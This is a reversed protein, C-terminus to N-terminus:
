PVAADCAQALPPPLAALARRLSVLDALNCEAALGDGDPDGPDLPGVVNCKEPAPVGTVIGALADRLASADGAAVTGGGAVDGCQCADGIGDGSTDTQAPDPWAACVDCADGDGDGDADAQAPNILAPCNDDCGSTMGGSCPADGAIGSGDGDDDVGDLDADGTLAGLALRVDSRRFSLGNDPNTVLPGYGALLARADDASLSPEAAFLLAAQGAAYPSAVSTGGVSVSGGGLASTTTRYDPALLDLTADSNTHCVFRDATTGTDTCRIESCSVDVCWRVTGLAADYVGGVSIAGPVCAPLELGADFGENGSAAFVAVGAARLDEILNATNSGTCPAVSPNSHEIGDGFSLNVARIAYLARNVFVWDLGADIDSFRAVGQADLVKVAVIGADPAVGVPAVTGASTVVGSVESGHGHDDQASGAGSQSSRGNPCCGSRPGPSDDCFCREAVVDDSLDPHSSDIGTDLVAVSVGAGTFGAAQAAAAGVLPVGQALSARALADAYVLDVEPDRLLAEIAAANAWGSLGAAHGYLHKPTFGSPALAGVVRQQREGLRARRLAGARPLDQARLTVSIAIREGPARAALERALSPDLRAARAPVELLLLLLLALLLWRM